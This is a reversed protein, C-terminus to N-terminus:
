ERSRNREKNLVRQVSSDLMSFFSSTHTHDSTRNGFLGPRFGFLAKVSNEEDGM